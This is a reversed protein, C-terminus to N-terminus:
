FIYINIIIASHIRESSWCFGSQGHYTGLPGRSPFRGQQPGGLIHPTQPSTHDGDKEALDIKQRKRGVNADFLFLSCLPFLYPSRGRRPPPLNRNQLLFQSTKQPAPFHSDRCGATPPSRPAATLRPLRPVLLGPEPDLEAELYGTYKPM